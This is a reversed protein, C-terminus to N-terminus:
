EFYGIVKRHNPESLWSIKMGIFEKTGDEVDYEIWEPVNEGEHIDEILVMLDELTLQLLWCGFPLFLLM